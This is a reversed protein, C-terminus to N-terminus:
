FLNSFSEIIYWFRYSRSDGLVGGVREVVFEGAPGCDEAEVRFVEVEDESFDKRATGDDGAVGRFFWAGIPQM